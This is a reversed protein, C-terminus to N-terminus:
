PTVFNSFSFMTLTKKSSSPGYASSISWSVPVTSYLPLPKVPSCFSVSPLSSKSFALNLLDAILNQYLGEFPLQIKLFQAATISLSLISSSSISPFRAFLNRQYKSGTTESSLIKQGISIFWAGTRFIEISSTTRM